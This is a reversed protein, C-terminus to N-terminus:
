NSPHIRAASIEGPRRCGQVSSACHRRQFRMGVVGAFGHIGYAGVGIEDACGVSRCSESWATPCPGRRVADNLLQGGDAASARSHDPTVPSGSRSRWGRAAMATSTLCFAEIAEDRGAVPHTRQRRPNATMMMTTARSTGGAFLILRVSDLPSGERATPTIPHHSM